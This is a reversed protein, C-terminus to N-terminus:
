AARCFQGNPRRPQLLRQKLITRELAFSVGGSNINHGYPYSMTTVFSRLAHARAKGRHSAYPPSRLSSIFPSKM